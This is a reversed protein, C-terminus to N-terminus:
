SCSNYHIVGALIIRFNPIYVGLKFKGGKLTDMRSNKPYNIVSDILTHSTKQSHPLTEGGEFQELGDLLDVILDQGLLSVLGVLM